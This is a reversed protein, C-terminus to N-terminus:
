AEKLFDKNAPGYLIKKSPELSKESDSSLSEGQNWDAGWQEKEGPETLKPPLHVPLTPVNHLSHCTKLGDGEREKSGAAWGPGEGEQPVWHGQPSMLERPVGLVTSRPGMIRVKEQHEKLQEWVKCVGLGALRPDWPPQTWCPM